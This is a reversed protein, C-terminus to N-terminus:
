RSHEIAVHMSAALTHLRSRSQTQRDHFANHVRVPAVDHNVTLNTATCGCHDCERDGIGGRILGDSTGRAMTHGSQRFGRHEKYCLECADFAAHLVGDSAKIVFFRIDGGGDATGRYFHARGDDFTKAELRVDGGIPLLEADFTQTSGQRHFIVFTLIAAAAISSAIVAEGVSLHRRQPSRLTLWRRRRIRPRDYRKTGKSM